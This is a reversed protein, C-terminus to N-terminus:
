KTEEELGLEKLKQALALTYDDRDSINYLSVADEYSMGYKSNLTDSIINKLNELETDCGYYSANDANVECRGAACVLSDAAMTVYGSQDFTEFADYKTSVAALVSLKDALQKNEGSLKLGSISAYADTYLSVSATDGQSVGAIAENYTNQAEIIKSNNGLLFTCILVLVVLSAVFVCILIVPGKPLKPGKEWPTRPKKEKKPKPAKPAKTKPTKAKKTKKAKKDKNKGGKAKEEAAELEDLIQQNEDSLTKVDADAGEAGAKEEDKNGDEPEKTLFSLLKKLFGPKKKKDSSNDPNERAQMQQEAYNDIDSGDAGEISDTNGELLQGIDELDKGDLIDLLDKSANGALDPEGIEDITNIQLGDDPLVDTADAESEFQEVAEGIHEIDDEPEADSQRSEEEKMRKDFDSLMEDLTEDQDDPAPTQIDAANGSVNDNGGDLEREFSTLYEDYTENDLEQEFQKLFDDEEHSSYTDEKDTTVSKEGSSDVTNLMDLADAMSNEAAEEPEDQIGYISNLLSDLYKETSKNSM